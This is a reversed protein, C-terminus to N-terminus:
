LVYRKPGGGYSFRRKEPVTNKLFYSELLINEFDSLEFIYKQVTIMKDSWLASKLAMKSCTALQM